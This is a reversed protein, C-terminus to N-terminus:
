SARRVALPPPSFDALVDLIAPAPDPLRGDRWLRVLGPRILDGALSAVEEDSLGSREIYDRASARGNGCPPVVVL